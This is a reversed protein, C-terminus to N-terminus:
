RNIENLFTTFKKEQAQISENEDGFSLLRMNLDYRDIYKRQDIFSYVITERKVAPLTTPKSQPQASSDANSKM